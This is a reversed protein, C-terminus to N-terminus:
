RVRTQMMSLFLGLISLMSSISCGLLAITRLAIMNSNDPEKVLFTGIFAAGLLLSLLFGLYPANAKNKKQYFASILFCIINLGMCFIVYGAVLMMEMATPLDVPELKM